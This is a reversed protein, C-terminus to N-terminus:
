VSRRITNGEECILGMCYFQNNHQNENQKNSLEKRPQNEQKHSFNFKNLTLNDVM